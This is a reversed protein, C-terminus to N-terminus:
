AAIILGKVAGVPDQGAMFHEGGDGMQDACDRRVFLSRIGHQRTKSLLQLLKWELPHAIEGGCADIPIAIAVPHIFGM